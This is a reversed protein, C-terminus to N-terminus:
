TTVPSWYLNVSLRHQHILHLIYLFHHGLQRIQVPIHGLGMHNRLYYRTRLIYFTATTAVQGVAKEGYGVEAAHPDQQWFFM